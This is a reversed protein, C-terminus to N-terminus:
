HSIDAGVVSADPEEFATSVVGVGVGVGPAGLGTYLGRLVASGNRRFGSTRFDRGGAPAPSGCCFGVGGAGGTVGGCPVGVGCGSISFGFTVHLENGNFVM